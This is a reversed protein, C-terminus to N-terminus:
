PVLIRRATTRTNRISVLHVGAAVTALDIVMSSSPAVVRRICRGMADFLVVEGLARAHPDTITLWRGDLVLLPPPMDEEASGMGVEVCPPYYVFPLDESGGAPLVDFPGNFFLDSQRVGFQFATGSAVPQEVHLTYAGPELCLSDFNQQLSDVNISLTGAGVVAGTSDSVNWPFTSTTTSGVQSYLYVQLPECAPPCLEATIPFTCVEPGNGTSYFLALTGSFQVTPLTAEPLLDMRHPQPDWGIGFFNMAERALTDGGQDVLCFQPYGFFQTTSTNLAVVQLATDTFPAYTLSVIQLSDCVDQAALMNASLLAIGTLARLSPAIPAMAM